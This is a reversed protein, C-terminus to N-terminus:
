LVLMKLLINTAAPPMPLSGSRYAKNRNRRSHPVFGTKCIEVQHFEQHNWTFAFCYASRLATNGGWWYVPSQSMGMGKEEELSLQGHLKGATSLGAARSFGWNGPEWLCETLNFTSHSLMYRVKGLPDVSLSLDDNRTLSTTSEEPKFLM